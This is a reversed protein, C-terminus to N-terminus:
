GAGGAGCRYLAAADLTDPPQALANFTGRVPLAQRDAAGSRTPVLTYVELAFTGAVQEPGTTLDLTGAASRYPSDFFVNTRYCAVFATDPAFAVEAIDAFTYAGSTPVMAQALALDLYTTDRVLSDPLVVSEFISRLRLALVPPAGPTEVVSFAASGELREYGGGLLSGVEAAFTGANGLDPGGDDVVPDDLGARGCGAALLALLLWYRM